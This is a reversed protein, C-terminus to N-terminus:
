FVKSLYEKVESKIIEPNEYNIWYSVLYLSGMILIMLAIQLLINRRRKVLNEGKNVEMTESNLLLFFPSIFVLIALYFITCFLYLLTNNFFSPMIIKIILPLVILIAIFRRYLNCIRYKVGCATCTISGYKPYCSYFKEKYSFNNGCKSCNKIIM